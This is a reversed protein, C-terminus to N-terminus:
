TASSVGGGVGGVISGPVAGVSTCQPSTSVSSVITPLSRSLQGPSPSTTPADFM